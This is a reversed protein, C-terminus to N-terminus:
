AYRKVMRGLERDDWKIGVNNLASAVSEEFSSMFALNETHMAQLVELIKDANLATEGRTLPTVTAGAPMNILEAGAEGVIASGPATINGGNALLPIKKLDFGFSKGGLVPVWDPVDFSLANLADIMSNIMGIIANVPKKVGEKIANFTEVVTKKFKEFYTPAKEIVGRVIDVVKTIAPVVKDVIFKALTTILEVLLPLILDCLMQFLPLLSMVIELIPPLVQKAFDMLVPLLTQLLDTLIPALKNVIEQITPMFAIIENCMDTVIPMLAGGLNTTLMSFSDKVKSIADNLEAGSKVTDESMVLGLDRAEQRMAAMEEGSANLMPTMKYAVAEGFIEVAKASREEATELEYIQALADDMNLDTGELQKAAKELTSMEVGSLGAAHALEQYSEAGIKMRQSAKDVVDAAGASDSALKVLSGAAGAAAAGLGAAFKGAKGAANLLTGGLGQAKKDTKAISDNAKDTDVFISGVLKFIDAM